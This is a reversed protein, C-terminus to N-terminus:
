LRVRTSVFWRTSSTWYHSNAEIRLWTLGFAPTSWCKSCSVPYVIAGGIMWTECPFHWPLLAARHQLKQGPRDTGM